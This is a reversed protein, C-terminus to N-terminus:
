QPISQCARLMYTQITEGAVTVHFGTWVREKLSDGGITVTQNHGDFAEEGPLPTGVETGLFAKGKDEAMGERHFGDMPARRFVVCDIRGLNGDQKTTAQQRLGIDIRGLPAGVTVEQPAPRGAHAFAGVEQGIDLMGVFVVPGLEALFDGILGVARTDGLAAVIRRPL